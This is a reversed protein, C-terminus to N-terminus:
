LIGRTKGGDVRFVSGTIWASSASALFAVVDAVQRSEGISGLPIRSTMEDEFRRRADDAPAGDGDALGDVFREWAHTRVPGPAVTNVLIGDSALTNSLHKALNLLAAKAGSYHPDHSGPEAATTSSVCVIRAQDSESLFKRAHRVLRVLAMVNTNYTALWDDDSLESLLGRGTAGGANHVVVDLRGFHAITRDVCTRVGEETSVDAIIPLCNSGSETLRLALAGLAGKGRACIALDAGELALRVAAAEGIGKSAGTILVVRQRLGLDM